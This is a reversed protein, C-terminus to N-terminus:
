GRAAGRRLLYAAGGAVGLLAVGAAAQVLGVGEARGETVTVTQVHRAGGRGCEITVQYRGPETEEDVGVEAAMGQVGPRLPVAGFLESAATAGGAVGCRGDDSISVREGAVVPDPEAAARAAPATATLLLLTLLAAATPRAAHM